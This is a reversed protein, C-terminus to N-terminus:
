GVQPHRIALDYLLRGKTYAEVISRGDIVVSVNFIHVLLEFLSMNKAVWANRDSEPFRM